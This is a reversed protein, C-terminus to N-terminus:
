KYKITHLIGILIYEGCWGKEVWKFVQGNVNEVDITDLDELGYGPKWMPFMGLVIEQSKIQSDEELGKGGELESRKIKRQNEEFKGKDKM